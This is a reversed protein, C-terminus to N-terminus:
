VIASIDEVAEAWRRTDLLASRNMFSKGRMRELRQASTSGQKINAHDLVDIAGERNNCLLIMDCGAQMAAEAREAYGGM